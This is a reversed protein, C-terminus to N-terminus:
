EAGGTKIFWSIRAVAQKADHSPKRQFKAPWEDFYFLRDAQRGDLELAAGAEAYTNFDNILYLRRVTTPKLRKALCCAWGAVCAATGCNPIASGTSFWDRMDFQKPEKLIQRQIRKLLVVNM